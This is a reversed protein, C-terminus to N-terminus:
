GEFAFERVLEWRGDVNERLTMHSVEIDAYFDALKEFAADLETEEVDHAITVHPHYPFRNEVALAGSRVSRELAECRSIGDAVAVFVVPSVPRFTGTGRLIVRFPPITAAVSALHEIVGDLVDDDVDVPPLITVHAPMGDPVEAYRAREADLLSGFPEPIELAVGITHGRGANPSM